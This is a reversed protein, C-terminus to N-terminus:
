KQKPDSNILLFGKEEVPGLCTLSNRCSPYFKFSLGRSAMSNTHKLLGLLLM